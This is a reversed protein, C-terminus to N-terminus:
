EAIQKELDRIKEAWLKLARKKEAHYAHRNYIGAVGARAGSVHNLVAEIEHPHIMLAAMGTAVTRRLDHIQWHDIQRGDQAALKEMRERIRAVMKSIGSVAKTATRQSAFLLLSRERNPISAILATAAESLPLLHPLKNKSRTSPLLWDGTAIDFETWSAEFVESRRAGTLLLLKMPVAFAQGEDRLAMLFLKVEYDSLVRDRKVEDAPKTINATPDVTLRTLHHGKTVCWRFFRKVLSVLRNASTPHTLGKAAIVAEVASRDVAHLSMSGIAPKFCADYLRRKERASKRSAGEAEMYANFAVDVTFTALHAAAASAKAQREREALPDIGGAQKRTIGCAWERADALSHAPYRGLTLKRPKGGIRGRWAWSKVGSPQVILFLGTTAPDALQQREISPRVANISTTTFKKM